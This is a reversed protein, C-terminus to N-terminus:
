EVSQHFMKWDTHFAGPQTVPAREVIQLSLNRMCECSFQVLPRFSIILSSQRYDRTVPGRKWARKTFNPGTCAFAKQGEKMIIIIICPTIAKLTFARAEVVEGPRIHFLTFSSLRPSLTIYIWWGCM